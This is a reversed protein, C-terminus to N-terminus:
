RLDLIKSRAPKLKEKLTNIYYERGKVYQIDGAELLESFTKTGYDFETSNELVKEIVVLNKLDWQVASNM